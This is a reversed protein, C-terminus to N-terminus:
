HTRRRAWFSDSHSVEFVLPEEKAEPCHQTQSSKMFKTSTQLKIKYTSASFYNNRM